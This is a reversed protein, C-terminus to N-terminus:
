KKAIWLEPDLYKEDFVMFKLVCNNSPGPEIFVEGIDQKTEVIDGKKVKVNVINSYVTYYKGHRIIVTMNAGSIPTIATVVGNFVSRVAVKGDSTIEVGYNEESVYKLV